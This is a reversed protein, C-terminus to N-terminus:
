SAQPFLAAALDPPPIRQSANAAAGRIHRADDPGGTKVPEAPPPPTDAQVREDLDSMGGPQPKSPIPRPEFPPLPPPLRTPNPDAARVPALQGGLYGILGVALLEGFRALTPIDQEPRLLRVLIVGVVDIGLVIVLGLAVRGMESLHKM